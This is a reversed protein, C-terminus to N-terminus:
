AKPPENAKKYEIYEQQVQAKMSYYLEMDEVWKLPQSNLGGPEPLVHFRTLWSGTRMVYNVPYYFGPDAIPQARQEDGPLPLPDEAVV